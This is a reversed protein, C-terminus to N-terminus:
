LPKCMVVMHKGPGNYDKSARVGGVDFEKDSINESM